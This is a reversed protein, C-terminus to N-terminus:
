EVRLATGCARCFRDGSSARRGCQHCYLGDDAPMIRADPEAMRRHRRFKGAARTRRLLWMYWVVGGVILAVGLSAVLWSFWPTPNDEPMPSAPEVGMNEVSLRPSSKEYDLALSYTAGELLKGVHVRHYLLGNSGRFTSEAPTSLQVNQALVPQQLIISLDDVAYDGPWLYEFRHLGNSATLSADYYELTGNLSRMTFSVILWSGDARQGYNEQVPITTGDDPYYGFGFAQGVSIPIRFHVDVPLSTNAPLTFNYIVLMSPLDYEPWLNVDLTALHLSEQARGLAPALLIVLALIVILPKRM